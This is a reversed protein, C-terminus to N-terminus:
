CQRSSLFACLPLFLSRARPNTTEGRPSTCRASAAIHTQQACTYMRACACATQRTFLCSCSTSAAQVFPDLPPLAQAFLCSHSPFLTRECVCATRGPVSVPGARGLTVPGARGLTVSVVAKRLSAGQLRCRYLSRRRPSTGALHPRITLCFFVRFLNM